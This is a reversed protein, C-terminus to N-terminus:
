KKVFKYVIFAAACILLMMAYGGLEMKYAQWKSLKKEVPYPVILTDATSIYLTDVSTREIYKTHYKELFITDNKQKMFISDHLYVSDRKYQTLYVSDIRVTTQPVYVTRTCSSAVIAYIIMAVLAPVLWTASKLDAGQLASM